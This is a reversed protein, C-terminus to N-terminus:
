RQAIFLLIFQLLTLILTLSAVTLGAIAIIWTRRDKIEGKSYAQMIIHHRHLRDSGSVTISYAPLITSGTDTKQLFGKSELSQVTVRIDEYGIAFRVYGWLHDCNMAISSHLDMIELIQLETPLVVIGNEM